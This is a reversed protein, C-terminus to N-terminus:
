PKACASEEPVVPVHTGVAICRAWEAMDAPDIQGTSCTAGTACRFAPVYWTTDKSFLLPARLDAATLFGAWEFPIAGASCLTSSLVVCTVYITDQLVNLIQCFERDKAVTCLSGGAPSACWSFQHCTKILPRQQEEGPRTGCAVGPATASEVKPQPTKDVYQVCLLKRWQSDQPFYKLLDRLDRKAEVETAHLMDIYPKGMYFIGWGKKIRKLRVPTKMKKRELQNLM